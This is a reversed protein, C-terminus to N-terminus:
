GFKKILWNVFSPDVTEKKNELCYLFTEQIVFFMQKNSIETKGAASLVEDVVVKLLKSQNFSLDLTRSEKHKINETLDQPSILDEVKCDLAEAIANITEIRPSMSLGNLINQVASRKLGAKKELARVSLHQKDLLNRIKHSLSFNM